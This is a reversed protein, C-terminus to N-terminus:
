RPARSSRPPGRRTSRDAEDSSSTEEFRALDAVEESSLIRRQFPPRGRYDTVRVSEATEEPAAEEFRALEATEASSVFRRKFPPHGRFDTVWVGSSSAASDADDAAWSTPVSFLGIALLTVSLFQKLFRNM